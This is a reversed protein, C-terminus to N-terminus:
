IKFDVMQMRIKSFAQREIQRVREGSKFGLLTAVEAYTRVAMQALFNKERVPEDERFRIRAQIIKHKNPMCAPCFVAPRGRRRVPEFDNECHVCKM